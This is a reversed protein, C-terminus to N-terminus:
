LNVGGVGVMEENVGVDPVVLPPVETAMVPVPSKPAVETL